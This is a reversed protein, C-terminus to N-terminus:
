MEPDTCTLDVGPAWSPRSPPPEAAERFRGLSVFLQSRRADHSSATRQKSPPSAGTELLKSPSRIFPSSGEVKQM